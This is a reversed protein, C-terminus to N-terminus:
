RGGDKHKFYFPKKKPDFSKKEGGHRKEFHHGQGSDSDKPYEYPKKKYGFGERGEGARKEFPRGRDFSKKGSANHYDGGPGPRRHSPDFSRFPKSFPKEHSPRAQSQNLLLDIKKELFTIQQQLRKILAVVDQEVPAPPLPNNDQPQESM